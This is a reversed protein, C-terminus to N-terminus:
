AFSIAVMKSRAVRTASQACRAIKKPAPRNRKSIILRVDLRGGRGGMM